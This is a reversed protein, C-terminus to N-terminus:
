LHNKFIWCITSNIVIFQIYQVFLEAKLHPLYAPATRGWSLFYSKKQNKLFWLLINICNLLLIYLNSARMEFLYLISDAQPGRLSYIIM